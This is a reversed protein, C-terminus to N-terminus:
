VPTSLQDELLELTQEIVLRLGIRLIKGVLELGVVLVVVKIGVLCAASTRETTESRITKERLVQWMLFHILNAFKRLALM